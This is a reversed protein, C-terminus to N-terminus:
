RHPRVPCASNRSSLQSTRCMVFPAVAAIIAVGASISAPLAPRRVLASAAVQKSSRVTESTLLPPWHGSRRSAIAMGLLGGPRFGRTLRRGGQEARFGSRAQGAFGNPRLLAAEGPPIWEANPSFLSPFGRCLLGWFPNQPWRFPLREARASRDDSGWRSVLHPVRLDGNHLIFRSRDTWSNV